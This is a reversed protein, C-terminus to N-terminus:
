VAKRYELNIYRDINDCYKDNIGYVKCFRNYEEIRNRLECIEEQVKKIQEGKMIWRMIFSELGKIYDLKEDAIDKERTHLGVSIAMARDINSQTEANVMGFYDRLRAKDVTMTQETMIMSDMPLFKENLMVHTPLQKKNLKSTVLSIIVTPSYKNGIDNQVVVCPRTGKQESGEKNEHGLDVYFVMGRKIVFERNM